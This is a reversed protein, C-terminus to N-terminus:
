GHSGPKTSAGRRRLVLGPIPQGEPRSGRAKEDGRSKRRHNVAGSGFRSSVLPEPVGAGSRPLHRSPVSGLCRVPLAGWGSRAGPGPIRAGRDLTSVGPVPASGGGRENVELPAEVGQTRYGQSRSLEFGNDTSEKALGALVTKATRPHTRSAPPSSPRRLPEPHLYPNRRILPRGRSEHVAGPRAGTPGDEIREVRDRLRIERHGARPRPGRGRGSQGPRGAVAFDAPRGRAARRGTPAVDVRRLRSASWRHLHAATDVCRLARLAPRVNAGACPSAKVM